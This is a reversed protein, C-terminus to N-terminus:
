SLLKPPRWCDALYDSTIHENITPKKKKSLELVPNVFDPQQTRYVISIGCPVFPNCFDRNCTSANNCPITKKHQDKKKCCMDGSCAKAPKAMVIDMNYFPQMMLLGFYLILISAIIKMPVFSSYLFRSDFIQDQKLPAFANLHHLL